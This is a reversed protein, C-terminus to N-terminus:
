MVGASKNNLKKTKRKNTNPCTRSAVSCNPKSVSITGLKKIFLVHLSKSYIEGQTTIQGKGISYCTYILQKILFSIRLVARQRHQGPHSVHLHLINSRYNSLTSDVQFAIKLQETTDSEKHGRPSHHHHHNLRLTTDSEQSGTSQLRGPEEAWPIRWALISSHTAMEKELPDEQGLSQVRTEQMAPLNKVLQAIFSAWPSVICDM